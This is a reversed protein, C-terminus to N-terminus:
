GDSLISGVRYWSSKEMVFIFLKKLLPKGDLKLPYRLAIVIAQVTKPTRQYEGSWCRFCAKKNTERHSRPPANEM